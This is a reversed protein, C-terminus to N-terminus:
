EPHGFVTFEWVEVTHQGDFAKEALEHSISFETSVRRASLVEFRSVDPFTCEQDQILYDYAEALDRGIAETTLAKM